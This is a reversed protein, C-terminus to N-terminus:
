PNEGHSDRGIRAEVERVLEMIGEDDRAQILDFLEDREEITMKEILPKYDPRPQSPTKLAIVDVRDQLRKIEPKTL